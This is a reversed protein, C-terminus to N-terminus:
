RTNSTTSPPQAEDGPAPTPDAPASTGAGHKKHSPKKKPAPKAAEPVLQNPLPV